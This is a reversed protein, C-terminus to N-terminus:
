PRPATDPDVFRKVVAGGLGDPVEGNVLNVVGRLEPQNYKRGWQRDHQRRASRTSIVGWAIPSLASPRPGPSVPFVGTRSVTPSSGCWRASVREVAPTVVLHFCPASREGSLLWYRAHVPSPSGFREVRGHRLATIAAAQGGGVPDRTLQPLRPRKGTKYDSVMLQGGATRDVRDVSGQFAVARGNDLVITVPPGADDDDGGIRAQRRHARVSRGRCSLADPRSRHGVPGHAVAPAQGGSRGGGGRRPREAAISLLRELSRAAGSVREAVYAELIAHVLSGRIPEIRWLEEPRVHESVHLVRDLLYRRPCKAYTEFRPGASVPKGPDFAPVHGPGVFGDFRTFRARRVSGRRGGPRPVPARSGRRTGAHSPGRWPGLSRARPIELEQVSIAPVAAALGAAFSDVQDGPLTATWWIESGAHRYRLGVPAPIVGPCRASVRRSASPSPTASITASRTRAIPGPGCRVRHTSGASTTAWCVKM